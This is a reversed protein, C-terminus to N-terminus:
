SRIRIGGVIQYVGPRIRKLTYYAESNDYFESDTLVYYKKSTELLTDSIKRGRVCILSRRMTPLCM